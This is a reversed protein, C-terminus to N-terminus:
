ESKQATPKKKRWEDLKQFRFELKEELSLSQMHQQIEMRESESLSSMMKQWDARDQQTANGWGQRIFQQKEPSLKEFSDIKELLDAKQEPSMAKIKQLTDIMSQLQKDNLQLFNRLNSLQGQKLEDPNNINPGSHLNSTQQNLPNGNIGQGAGRGMGQGAGSGNGKASISNAPSAVAVALLAVITFIRKMDIIILYKNRINDM